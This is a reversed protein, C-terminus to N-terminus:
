NLHPKVSVGYHDSNSNKIVQNYTIAKSCPNSQQQKNKDNHFPTIIRLSKRPAAM